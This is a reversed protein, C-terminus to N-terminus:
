LEVLDGKALYKKIKELEERVKERGMDSRYWNDKTFNYASSVHTAAKLSIHAPMHKKLTMLVRRAHFNKVVAVIVKIKNLGLAEDIIKKSFLVNQLTNTSRNEVLIDHRLVGLNVLETAMLDGEIVGSHKNMGGSVTIKPVLKRAYLEAAKEVSIKWSKWTGFVFAIDGRLDTDELFIYKTIEETTM